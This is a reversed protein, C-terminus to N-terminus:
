LGVDKWHGLCWTSGREKSSGLSRKSVGSCARWNLHQKKIVVLRSSQVLQGTTGKEKTSGPPKSPKNGTRQTEAGKDRDAPSRELDGQRDLLPRDRQFGLKWHQQISDQRQEASVGHAM